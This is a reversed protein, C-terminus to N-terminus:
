LMQNLYYESLELRVPNFKDEYPLSGAAFTLTDDTRAPLVLAFECGNKQPRCELRGGHLHAIRRTTALGFGTGCPNEFDDEMADNIRRRDESSLAGGDDCVTITAEGDVLTLRLQVRSNCNHAANSLLMLVARQLKAKDMALFVPKDPLEAEFRFPPEQMKDIEACVRRLSDCLDANVPVFDCGCCTLQSYTTFNRLYRLMRLTSGYLERLTVRSASDEPEDHYLQELRYLNYSLNENFYRGARSVSREYEEPKVVESKRANM